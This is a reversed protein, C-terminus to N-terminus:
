SPSTGRKKLYIAHAWAELSNVSPGALVEEAIRLKSATEFGQV